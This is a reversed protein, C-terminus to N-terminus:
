SEEELAPRQRLPPLSARWRGLPFLPVIRARLGSWGASVGLVALALAFLTASLTIGDRGALGEFLVWLSYGAYTLGSVLLARRDIVLAVIFLAVVIALIALALQAGELHILSGADDAFLAFLVSGRLSGGGFLGAVVSHVILPAAVLHLWFATDAKRGRRLPDALDFRMALAFVGLGALLTIAFIMHRAFAPVVALLLAIVLSVLGCVALAVDIPLRFRAYHLGAALAGIGAILAVSRASPDDLTGIVGIVALWAVAGVFMVALIISPLALRLRRTFVEALGWAMVAAVFTIAIGDAWVGSVSFLAAILLLLGITVLIDNFGGLIRFKEEDAEVAAVAAAEEHLAERRTRQFVILAEAQARSIVGATVAADLDHDLMDAEQRCDQGAM